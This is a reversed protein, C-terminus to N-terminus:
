KFVTDNTGHPSGSLRMSLVGISRTMPLSLQLLGAQLDDLTVYDLEDISGTDLSIRKQERFKIFVKEIQMWAVFQKFNFTLGDKMAERM